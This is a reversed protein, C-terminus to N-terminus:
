HLTRVQILKPGLLSSEEVVLEFQDVRVREGERPMHGLALEMVQSLTKAQQFHLHLQYQQYFEELSLDGPLVRDLAVPCLGPIVDGLSMWHDEQGFIEDIVEDLTLVGVATGSAGLVVAVSQNNKRFQKIVQLISVTETIFWPSRSQERIKKTEALRLLDRPYAMAVIHNKNKHFLPVYPVYSSSLLHKMDLLTAGVPLMPVQELPVMLEKATKTKLSFIRSVATNLDEKEKSVVKEERDEIINQLEERTLYLDSTLSSGFLKDVWRCLCDIMWIFPRLIFTMGYIFRIGLMVAHEAYRRGAFMPSIESLILVLFAQTFPALGAHFGVAEYFRRSCESGILLAANGSILTTGFFLAPRNLLYSLCHASSNGKSLYYQLRVKNFSVCAMEMMSFFSQTMICLATLTFFWSWPEM